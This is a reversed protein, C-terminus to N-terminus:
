PLTNPLHCTDLCFGQNPRMIGRVEGKKIDNTCVLGRMANKVSAIKAKENCKGGANNIFEVLKMTELSNDLRHPAMPDVKKAGFGGSKATKTAAFGESGNLVSALVMM